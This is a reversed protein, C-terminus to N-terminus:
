EDDDGPERNRKEHEGVFEEDDAQKPAEVATKSKGLKAKAKAAQERAFRTLEADMADFDNVFAVAAFKDRQGARPELPANILGTSQAFRYLQTAAQFANLVEGAEPDIEGDAKANFAIWRNNFEAVKEKYWAEYAKVDEASAYAGTGNGTKNDFHKAHHSDSNDYDSNDIDIAQALAEAVKSNTGVPLTKCLRKLASKKAMENWDTVWPGSKASQSRGRILEVEDKALVVIQYEDNTFKAVAYVDTVDGKDAGRFPVHRFKLDPDRYYEFVDKEYVVDAQIYKIGGAQRALKVLGRYGPQFQVEM